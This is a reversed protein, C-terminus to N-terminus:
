PIKLWRAANEFLIKGKASESIGAATVRAICASLERIPLDSGYLVRDAGLKECAFEVLGAFPLCSSTDVVLNDLGVAELVGRYGVGPLHAMIVRTNPHRRALGCTDIPDSHTRRMAKHETAWTHQLVPVDYEEAAKMVAKMAPHSANNAVELKIGRFGSGGVWRDVESRVAKEGLLPNLYCFAIFFNPHRRVLAHSEANLVGLQKGTPEPGYRLVDGLSVMKEVGLKRSYRVLRDIAQNSYAEEFFIPHTHIDIIRPV